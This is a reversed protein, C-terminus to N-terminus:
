LIEVFRWNQSILGYLEEKPLLRTILYVNTVLVMSKQWVVLDRYNRLKM